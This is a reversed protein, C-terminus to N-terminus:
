ELSRVRLEFTKPLFNRLKTMTMTSNIVAPLNNMNGFSNGVGVCGEVDPYTNAAHILIADRDPVGTVEWTDPFKITNHQICQYDGVPICSINHQNNLWPREVTVCIPEDDVVLAGFTGKDSSVFRNLYVIM